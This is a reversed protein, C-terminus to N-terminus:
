KNEKEPQARNVLWDHIPCAALYALEALFQPWFLISIWERDPGDLAFREFRAWTM